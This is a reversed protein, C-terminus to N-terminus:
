SKRRKLIEVGDLCDKKLQSDSILEDLWIVDDNWNCIDGIKESVDSKVSPSPDRLMVCVDLDSNRNCRLNLSSGFVYIADVRDDVRFEDIISQVEKQKLPYIHSIVDDPASVTTAIPFRYRRTREMEWTRGM